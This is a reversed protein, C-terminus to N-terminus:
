SARRSSHADVHVTCVCASKGGVPNHVGAYMRGPFAVYSRTPGEHISVNVMCALHMMQVYAYRPM